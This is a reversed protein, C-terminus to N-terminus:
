RARRCSRALSRRYWRQEAARSVAAKARATRACQVMSLRSWQTSSTTKWSSRALSRVPVAGSVDGHDFVHGEVEEAVGCGIGAEFVSEIEGAPVEVVEV